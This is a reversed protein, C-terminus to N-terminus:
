QPLVGRVKNYGAPNFQPYGNTRTSVVGWTNGAIELGLPLWWLSRELKRRSHLMRYSVYSVSAVGAISVAVYAPHPLNVIPRAIPNAELDGHDMYYATQGVDFMGVGFSAATLTEWAKKHEFNSHASVSKIPEPKDPLFNQASAMGALLLAFVLVITAKM